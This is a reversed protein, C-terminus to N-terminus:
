RRRKKAVAPTDPLKVATAAQKEAYANTQQNRHQLLVMHIAGVNAAPMQGILNLAADVLNLPLTIPLTNPVEVPKQESM